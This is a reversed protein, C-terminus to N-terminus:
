SLTAAVEPLLESRPINPCPQTVPFGYFRLADDPLFPPPAIMRWGEAVAEDFPFRWTNRGHRVYVYVGENPLRGIQAGQRVLSEQLSVDEGLSIDPFRLGKVWWRRAWTLTGWNAGQFFLGGPGVSNHQWFSHDALQLMYSAPLVTADFRGTLMPTVQCTIRNPGFWDDDDWCMLYDGTALECGLNRKTGTSRRSSLRLYHIRSDRPVLDEVPTPSDDVIILERQRYDQDLFCQIAQPIFQRRDHTAMLCSVLGSRTAVSPRKPGPAACEAKLRENRHKIIHRSPRRARLRLGAYFERDTWITKAIGGVPISKHNPRAPKSPAASEPSIAIYWPAHMRTVPRPPADPVSSREFANAQDQPEFGPFLRDCLFTKRCLRSSTTEESIWACAALPCYCTLDRAVCIAASMETLQRIQSSLRDRGIWDGCDWLAIYRGRCSEMAGRLLEVRSVEPESRLFRISDTPITREELWSERDTLILLEKEALDQRLFYRLSQEFFALPRDAFM